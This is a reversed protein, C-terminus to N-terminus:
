EAKIGSLKVVKAWKETEVAILKGFDTPSGALVTNGLDALQAKIKPDEGCMGRRGFSLSRPSTTMALALAFGRRKDKDTLPSRWTGGDVGRRRSDAEERQPRYLPPPAPFDHLQVVLQEFLATLEAATFAHDARPPLGAAARALVIEPYERHIGKASGAESGWSNRNSRRGTIQAAFHERGAAVECHDRAIPDHQRAPV